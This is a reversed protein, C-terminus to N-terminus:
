FSTWSNNLLLATFVHIVFAVTAGASLEFLILEENGFFVTVALTAFAFLGFEFLPPHYVTSHYFHALPNATTGM